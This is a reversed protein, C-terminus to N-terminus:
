TSAFRIQIVTAALTSGDEASPEYFVIAGHQAPVEEFEIDGEFPGPPPVGSGTVFGEGLAEGFEQGGARVEVNVHGEFALARGSVHVPSSIEAFAAPEDVVIQETQAAVVTWPSDDRDGLQRLDLTTTISARENPRLDVEVARPEEERVEGIVPSAMGLYVRGFDEATLRPDSYRENHTASELSEENWVPWIGSIETEPASTTTTPAETTTPGATTTPGGTGLEDEDDRDLLFAGALVAAVIVVLVVAGALFKKAEDGPRSSAM